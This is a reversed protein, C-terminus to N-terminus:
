FIEKDDILFCIKNKKKDLYVAHVNITKVNELLEKIIKIEENAKLASQGFKGTKPYTYAFYLKEDKIIAFVYLKFSSSKGSNYSIRLKAIPNEVSPNLRQAVCNAFIQEISLNFVSEIIALECFKYSNNKLLNKVKIIFSEQFFYQM